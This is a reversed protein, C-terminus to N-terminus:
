DFPIPRLNSGGMRKRMEAGAAVTSPVKIGCCDGFWDASEHPHDHGHAHDPGVHEAGGESPDTMGEAAPLFSGFLFHQMIPLKGLVEKVFMKKMGSEVKTWNKSGSIDDLMPSHWRLGKVTKVSEVWRVQDLYLYNDGEEELTATNHIGLPTVYPHGVLQSAGFLFPLFHYDDLGWVGHSGAPELYYASQIERMLHMYEFYVKVVVAPFDSAPLLGLQYLCLLWMMFNLEHGSGYDIREQSGLCNILYTSAEETAAADKLGLINTHWSASQASVDDCLARFAPNGFRSGGQDIPPNKALLSRIQAVVSLVKSISESQPKNQFDTISHGRVSDTLGFVFALVIQYTPSSIFLEHDKPSIIRRIPHRYQHVSLDPPSPLPPTTPTIDRSTPTARRTNSRLESLRKSLDVKGTPSPLSAQSAM